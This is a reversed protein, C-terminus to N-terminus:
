RGKAAVAIADLIEAIRLSLELSGAGPWRDAATAGEILSLFHTVVVDLPPTEDV